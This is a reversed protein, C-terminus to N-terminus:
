GGLVKWGYAHWGRGRQGGGVQATWDGFRYAAETLNRLWAANVGEERDRAAIHPYLQGAQVAM